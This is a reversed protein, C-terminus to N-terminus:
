ANTCGMTGHCTKGCLNANPMKGSDLLDVMCQTICEDCTIKEPESSGAAAEAAAAAERAKREAELKALRDAEDKAAKEAKARADKIAKAIRAAADRAAKATAAAIAAARARADKAAKAAAAAAAAARRKAADIVAKEKDLETKLKCHFSVKDVLGGCRFRYGNARYKSGCKLVTSRGGNGGHGEFKDVYRGYRIAVTSDSDGISGKSGGGNGGCKRLLTGDSCKGQISDVLGGTRLAWHTIWAGPKCKVDVLHGGNGGYSPTSYSMPYFVKTVAKHVSKYAKKIFGGFQAGEQVDAQFDTELSDDDSIPIATALAVFLGFVLLYKMM